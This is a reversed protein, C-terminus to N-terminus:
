PSIRETVTLSITAHHCLVGGFTREDIVLAQAPADDSVGGDGYFWASGDKATRLRECVNDILAQFTKDTADADNLGMYGNIEFKHFRLYAGQHKEPAAVRTIEWGRIQSKGAILAKFLNIFANWDATWRSYDHTQGIDTVADLNSKVDALIDLYKSAM